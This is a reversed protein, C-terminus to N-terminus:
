HYYVNTFTYWIQVMGHTQLCVCEFVKLCLLCMNRCASVNLCMEVFCVCTNAPLCMWVCKSLASVHTQLRVCESVNLCLPCSINHRLWGTRRSRLTASPQMDALENLASRQAFAYVDISNVSFGNELLRAIEFLVLAFYSLLLDCHPKAKNLDSTAVVVKLVHLHKSCM